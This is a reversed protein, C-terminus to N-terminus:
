APEMTERALRLVPHARGVPVPGNPSNRRPLRIMCLGVPPDARFLRAHMADHQPIPQPPSVAVVCARASRFQDVAVPGSIPAARGQPISLVEGVILLAFQTGARALGYVQKRRNPM